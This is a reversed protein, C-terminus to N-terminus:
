TARKVQIFVPEGKGLVVATLHGGYVCGTDVNIRNPEVEVKDSPTHGHVIRAGFDKRSLLFKSRIWLLSEEDQEDLTANPHVGAHCFFHGDARYTLPLARCWARADEPISGGYSQVTAEGGNRYWWELLNKDLLAREMMDEHNGKLAVVRVGEPQYGRVVDIVGKSDPGRDIYDGLFVVTDGPKPDIKGLLARLEDVCGHSDGIAFIASTSM